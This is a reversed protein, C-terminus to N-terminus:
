VTTWFSPLLYRQAKRLFIYLFPAPLSAPSPPFMWHLCLFLIYLSVAFFLCVINPVGDLNIDAFTKLEKGLRNWLVPSRLRQQLLSLTFISKEKGRIVSSAGMLSERRLIFWHMGPALGFGPVHPWAEVQTFVPPSAVSWIILVSAVFSVVTYQTDHTESVLCPVTMKKLGYLLEQFIFVMAGM